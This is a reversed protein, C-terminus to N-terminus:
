ENALHRLANPAHPDRQINNITAILDAAIRLDLTGFYPGPGKLAKAKVQKPEFAEAVWKTALVHNQQSSSTVARIVSQRWMRLSGADPLPDLTIQDIRDAAIWPTM